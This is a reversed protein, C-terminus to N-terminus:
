ILPGLAPNRAASQLAGWEVWVATSELLMNLLGRTWRAAVRRGAPLRHTNHWRLPGGEASLMDGEKKM